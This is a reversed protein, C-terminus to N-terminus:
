TLIKTQKFAEELAKQQEDKQSQLIAKKAFIVINYNMDTSLLEKVQAVLSRKIKNRIVARKDVKKGVVVAAHLGENKNNDFRLVFFPTSFVRRPSGKRFSFRHSKDLM